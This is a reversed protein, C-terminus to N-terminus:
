RELWEHGPRTTGDALVFPMYGENPRVANSDTKGRSGTVFAGECLHWAIWGIGHRELTEIGDRALTGREHDDLSGCCTETCILPKGFRAALALHDACLKDMEGIQRPYPHFSIVDVLAATQLVWDYTMSGITVPIDSRRRLQDVANSLWVHEKFWLSPDGWPGLPENCVDWMAVRPDRGFRRALAIVYGDFKDLAWGWCRLDQDAIGGAPYRDDVWRNFLVPMARMGRRGLIDLAQDLRDLMAEGLTLYAHWDLWLRLVNAGFRTAWGTEREWIAADFHTWIHQLTAAYSPQYNFGRLEQWHTM